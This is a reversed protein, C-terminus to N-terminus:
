THSTPWIASVESQKLPRSQGPQLTQDLQLNGVRTRHLSLVEIQFYGFMRKIQHYRGEDM